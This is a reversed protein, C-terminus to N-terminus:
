RLVKWKTKTVKSKFFDYKSNSCMYMIYDYNNDIVRTESFAKKKIANEFCKKPDDDFISKLHSAGRFHLNHPSCGESPKPCTNINENESILYLNTM